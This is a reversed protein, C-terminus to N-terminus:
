AEAKRSKKILSTVRPSPKSGEGIWYDIRDLSLKLPTEEGRASPNFIGVREIYGSDRRKSSDTVVVNYFPRKKAGRRSLRIVVM